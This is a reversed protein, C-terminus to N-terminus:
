LLLEAAIKKAAILKESDVWCSAGHQQSDSLNAVIARENTVRGVVEEVKMM